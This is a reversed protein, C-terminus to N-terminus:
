FLTKVLARKALAEDLSTTIVDLGVEPSTNSRLLTALLCSGDHFVSTWSWVDQDTGGCWLGEMSSMSM